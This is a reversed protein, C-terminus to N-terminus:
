LSPLLLGLSLPCLIDMIKLLTPSSVNTVSHTTYCTLDLKILVILLFTYVLALPHTVLM